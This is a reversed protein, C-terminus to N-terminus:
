VMSDIGRCIHYYIENIYTKESRFNTTNKWLSRACIKAFKDTINTAIELKSCDRVSAYSYLEYIQHLNKKSDRNPEFFLLLLLTNYQYMYILIEYIFTIHM